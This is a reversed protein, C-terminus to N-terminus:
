YYNLTTYIGLSRGRATWSPLHQIASFDNNIYDQGCVNKHNHNHRCHRLSYISSTQMDTAMLTKMPSVRPLSLMTTVRSMTMMMMMTRLIDEKDDNHDGQSHQLVPLCHGEETKRAEWWFRRGWVLLICWQPHCHCIGVWTIWTVSAM